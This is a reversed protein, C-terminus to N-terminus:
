DEALKVILKGTNRGEFLGIFADPAQELGDVVTERSHIQGADFWEQMQAAFRAFDDESHDGNIFGQVRLRKFIFSLLFNHVSEGSGDSLGNYGSVLGCVPVRAGLNLLPWIAERVAGGVNEFYIDIGDPAAQRLRGALDPARYDLCAHFGLEEVVARCKTSGGAIGLVRCGLIRGIQGVVSGVAGAAASVALTEGPQPQGIATLGWWATFGTMGLIGLARSPQVM